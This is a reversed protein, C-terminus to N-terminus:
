LLPLPFLLRPHDRYLPTEINWRSRLSRKRPLSLIRALRLEDLILPWNGLKSGRVDLGYIFGIRQGLLQDLLKRSETCSFLSTWILHAAAALAIFDRRISYIM